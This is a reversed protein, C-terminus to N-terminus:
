PEDYCINRGSSTLIGSLRIKCNKRGCVCYHTILFPLKLALGADLRAPRATCFDTHFCLVCFYVCRCVSHYVSLSRYLCYRYQKYLMGSACTIFSYLFSFHLFVTLLLFVHSPTQHLPCHMCQTQASKWGCGQLGCVACRVGLSRLVRVSISLYLKSHKYYIFWLFRYWSHVPLYLGAPPGRILIVNTVTM